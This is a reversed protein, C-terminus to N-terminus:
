SPPGEGWPSRKIDFGVLIQTFGDGSRRAPRRGSTHSKLGGNVSGGSKMVSRWGGDRGELADNPIGDVIPLPKTSETASPREGARGHVSPRNILVLVQVPSEGLRRPWQGPNIGPSGVNQGVHLGAHADCYRVIREKILSGFCAQLGRTCAVALGHRARAGRAGMARSELRNSAPSHRRKCIMAPGTPGRAPARKRDRAERRYRPPTPACSIRLSVM